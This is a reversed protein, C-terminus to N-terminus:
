SKQEEKSGAQQKGEKRGASRRRTYIMSTLLLATGLVLFSIIRFAPDVRVLDVIFVYIITMITTLLAMWRYKRSKLLRSFLYYVLATFLWSLSVFGQPISHYLAYPIFFLASGLYANRMMETKLELREKKWNLVRASLLAVIGFSVSILSV